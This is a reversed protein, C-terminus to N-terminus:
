IREMFLQWKVECVENEFRCSVHIFAATKMIIHCYLIHRGPGSIRSDSQNSRITFSKNVSKAQESSETGAGSGRHLYKEVNITCNPLLYKINVSWFIGADSNNKTEESNQTIIKECECSLMLGLFQSM